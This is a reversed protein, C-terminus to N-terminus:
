STGFKHALLETLKRSERGKVLATIRAVLAGDHRHLALASLALAAEDPPAREVLSVLFDNAADSRLLAIGLLVSEAMRDDRHKEWGRRLSDFAGQARSEGLALAAAEVFGEGGNQLADEVLGLYREPFIGLLGKYAAGLVDPERDGALVKVHLVAAAGETGSAGLASAAGARAVPDGDFLMPAVDLLARPHHIHLIAHACLGRLGPATDIPKPYAGEIQRHRLGAMYVDPEQADFSLLAEVVRCKGLCGTDRKVADELLRMFAAALDPVLEIMEQKKVAEAAEGVLYGNKEALYKKLEGRAENVPASALAHIRARKDDFTRAAAM